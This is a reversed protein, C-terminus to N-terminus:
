KWVAASDSNIQTDGASPTLGMSQGCSVVQERDAELKPENNLEKSALVSVSIGQLPTHRTRHLTTSLVGSEQGSQEWVEPVYGLCITGCDEYDNM